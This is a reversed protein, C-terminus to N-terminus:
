FLFPIFMKSKKMYEAYADGFKLKNEVEEVRGTAFLAATAIGALLAGPLSIDKLFAGWAFALLSAYLPHRIYRYAGLTVLTRTSEIGSQPRGIVRLLYFGHAALFASALLLLWSVIQRPSFPDRFWRPANLLILGLISEFAFFRYFGHSRSNRLWPWSFAVIPASVVLFLIWQLLM